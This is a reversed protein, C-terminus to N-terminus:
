VTEPNVGHAEEKGVLSAQRSVSVIVVGVDDTVVLLQELRADSVKHESCDARRFPFEMRVNDAPCRAFKRGCILLVQLKFLQQPFGWDFHPFLHLAIKLRSM